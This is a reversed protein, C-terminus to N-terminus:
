GRREVGMVLAEDSSNSSGVDEPADINGGEHDGSIPKRKADGSSKGHEM